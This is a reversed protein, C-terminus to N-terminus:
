KKVVVIRGKWNKMFQDLSIKKFRGKIHDKSNPDHYFFGICAGEKSMVLGVLTVLHGGTRSMMSSLVPVQHAVLEVITEVGDIREESVWEERYSKKFGNLKAIAILGNHIWGHEPDHAHIAAGLDILQDISSKKYRASDKGVYDMAMKLAVVGCARPRWFARGVDLRQSYYPVRFRIDLRSKM